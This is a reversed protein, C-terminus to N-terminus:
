SKEKETIVACNIIFLLVVNADHQGVRDQQILFSNHINTFIYLMVM